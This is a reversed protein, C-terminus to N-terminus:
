PSALAQLNSLAQKGDDTLWAGFVSSGHETWALDDAIYALLLRVDNGQTPAHEWGPQESLYTLMLADIADPDGCGCWGLEATVSPIFEPDAFCSGCPPQSSTFAVNKVHIENGCGCGRVWNRAIPTVTM